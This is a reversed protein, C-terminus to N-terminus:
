SLSYIAMYTCLLMVYSLLTIYLYFLVQESTIMSDKHGQLFIEEFKSAATLTEMDDFDSAEKLRNLSAKFNFAGESTICCKICVFSLKEIKGLFKFQEDSLNCCNQHFWLECECCFITNLRCARRCVGCPYKAPRPM